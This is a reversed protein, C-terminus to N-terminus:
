RQYVQPMYSDVSDYQPVTDPLAVTPQRASVDANLHQMHQGHQTLWDWGDATLRGCHLKAIPMPLKSLISLLDTAPCSILAAVDCRWSGDPTKDANVTVSDGNFARAHEVQQCNAVIFQLGTAIDEHSFAVTRLQLCATLPTLLTRM